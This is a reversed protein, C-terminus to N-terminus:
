RMDIVEYEPYEAEDYEFFGPTPVFSQDLDKIVYIFSNGGNDFITLQKIQLEQEQIDIHIKTFKKGSEPKLEITKQGPNQNRRNEQFYSIKHDEFYSTLLRSPTINEEGELADSIMVEESDELITWITNGNSIVTQGVMVLKYADGQIFVEGTKLEDIGADENIMRYDFAVKMAPYSKTQDIVKRLLEEATDQATLQQSIGVLLLLILTKMLNKM